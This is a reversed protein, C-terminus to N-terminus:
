RMADAPESDALGFRAASADLRGLGCGVLGRWRHAIAAAVPAADPGAETRVLDLEKLAWELPFRAPHDGAEMKALRALATDSALPGGEAAARIAEAAAEVEFALSHVRPDGTAPSGVLEDLPVQHARALWSSSGVM